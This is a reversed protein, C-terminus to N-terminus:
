YRDKIAKKIVDNFLKYKSDTFSSALIAKKDFKGINSRYRDSIIQFLNANPNTNIDAFKSKFKREKLLKQVDKQTQNQGYSLKNIQEVQIKLNSALEIESASLGNNIKKAGNNGILNSRTGSGLSKNVSILNLKNDFKNLVTSGLAKNIYKQYKKGRDALVYNKNLKKSMTKNYVTELKRNYKQLKRTKENIKDIIEDTVELNGSYYSHLYNNSFMKLENIKKTKEVGLDKAYSKIHKAYRAHRPNFCSNSKQCRCNVDYTRKNDVCQAQAFISYLFFTIGILLKTIM